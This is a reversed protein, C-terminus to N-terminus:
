FLTKQEGKYIELFRQVDRYNAKEINEKATLIANIWKQNGKTRRIAVIIYYYFGGVGQVKIPIAIEKYKKIQQLYLDLYDNPDKCEKWSDTGFFKTLTESGTSLGATRSVASIQFNIIVDSWRELLKEMTKWENQLGEPDVFALFPTSRTSSFKTFATDLGGENVDQNIVIANPLLKQLAEAYIPKKEILIIKDFKKNSRPIKDAILPSGFVVDTGNRITNLGPGAFIDLYYTHPFIAKIINTYVDVYYSLISLKLLAWSRPSYAVKTAQYLQSAEDKFGKLVNIRKLWWSLYDGKRTSKAM